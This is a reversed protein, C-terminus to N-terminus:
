HIPFLFIRKVPIFILEAFSGSLADFDNARLIAIGHSYVSHRRFVLCHGEVRNSYCFYVRSTPLQFYGCWHRKGPKSNRGKTFRRAVYVVWLQLGSLTLCILILPWMVGIGESQPFLSTIFFIVGLAGCLVGGGQHFASILNWLGATPPRLQLCFPIVFPLVLLVGISSRSPPDYPLGGSAFDFMM